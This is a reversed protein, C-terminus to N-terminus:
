DRIVKVLVVTTCCLTEVGNVGYYVLPFSGQALEIWSRAECLCMV